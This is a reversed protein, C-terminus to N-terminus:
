RLRVNFGVKRACAPGHVRSERSEDLSENEIPVRKSVNEVSICMTDYM